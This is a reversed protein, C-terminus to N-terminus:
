LEGNRPGGVKKRSNDSTGSDVSQFLTLQKTDQLPEDDFYRLAHLERYYEKAKPVSVGYFGAFRVLVQDVTEPPLRKRLMGLLRQKREVRGEANTTLCLGEARLSM